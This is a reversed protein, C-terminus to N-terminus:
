RWVSPSDRGTQGAAGQSGRVAHWHQCFDWHAAGPHCDEERQEGAWGKCWWPINCTIRSSLIMRHDNLVMISCSLSLLNNLRLWCAMLFVIMKTIIESNDRPPIIELVMFIRAVLPLPDMFLRFTYWMGFNIVIIWLILHNDEKVEIFEMNWAAKGGAAAAWGVSYRRWRWM